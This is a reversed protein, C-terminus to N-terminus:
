LAPDSAPMGGPSPVEGAGTLAENLDRMGSPTLKCDRYVPESRVEKELRQQITTNQVRISAIAKATAERGERAAKEVALEARDQKAAELRQGDFRGVGYGALCLGAVALLAYPSM